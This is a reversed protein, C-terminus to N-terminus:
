YNPARRETEGIVFIMLGALGIELFNSILLWLAWLGSAPAIAVATVLGWAGGLIQLFCLINVVNRVVEVHLMLGLGVIANIGGFVIAFIGGNPHDHTAFATALLVQLAGGLLWWTAIGYYAVTVWTATRGV